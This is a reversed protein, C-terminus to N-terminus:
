RRTKSGEFRTKGAAWRGSAADSLGGRRECGREAIAMQASAGEILSVRSALGAFGCQEDGDHAANKPCAIESPDVSQIGAPPGFIGLLPGATCSMMALSPGAHAAESPMRTQTTAIAIRPALMPEALAWALAWSQGVRGMRRTTPALAPPPVSM